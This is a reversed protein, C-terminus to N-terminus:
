ATLSALPKYISIIFDSYNISDISDNADKAATAVPLIGMEQHNVASHNVPLLFVWEQNLRQPEGTSIGM